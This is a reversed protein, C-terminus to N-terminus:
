WINPILRYRVKQCYEEYGKLNSILYKEEALLRLAIVFTFPLFAILGWGSGLALPTGFLMILAGIYMPHRVKSYPGTTVVKQEAAVEIVASTFTNEKFTLFVLYFGICVLINGLIVIFVPIDSWGLRRDIAPLVMVGIFLINAFYQINKQSKEKEAVPGAKTRRELLKPDKRWLYSTILSSSLAFNCLYVWGEWFKISGFPIFILLALITYLTLSGGLAKLVLNGSEKNM